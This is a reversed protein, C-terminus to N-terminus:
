IEGSISTPEKEIIDKQYIKEYNKRLRMLLALPSSATHYLCLFFNM